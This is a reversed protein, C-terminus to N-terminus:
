EGPIFIYQLLVLLGYIFGNGFAIIQISENSLFPAFAKLSWITIFTLFVGTLVAAGGFAIFTFFSKHLHDRTRNKGKIGNKLSSAVTIYSGVFYIWLVCRLFVDVLITDFYQHYDIVPLFLFLISFLTLM